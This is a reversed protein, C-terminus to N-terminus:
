GFFPMLAPLVATTNISDMVQGGVAGVAVVLVGAIANRLGKTKGEADDSRFAFAIQVAGFIVVAAGIFIFASMMMKILGQMGSRDMGQDFAGQYIGGPGGTAALAVVPMALMSLSILASKIKKMIKGEMKETVGM